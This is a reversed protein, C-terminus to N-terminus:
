LPWEGMSAYFHIGSGRFCAAGCKLEWPSVRYRLRAGNLRRQVLDYTGRGVRVVADHEYGVATRIKKEATKEPMDPLLRQLM